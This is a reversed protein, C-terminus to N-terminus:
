RVEQAVDTLVVDHWGATLQTTQHHATGDVARWSIEAEVPGDGAAGLGFFVDFSRKGSHGSGGDLQALQTRGDATRIRVQAGYAPSGPGDGGGDAPRHLRLGLFNGQGANENRYFVPAGWQRAVAFDQAGNGDTDAVAVGRSPTDDTMGLEASINAYRGNDERVWFAFPQSGAIDDGPEANPWMHPEALMLDNSMALEQLWSWRNINGKVFGTAQVVSLRGSNDFDAMKSDWGWGVWAMNLDAAKNDFIAEGRDLRRRADETSTANNRWVFNSEELGWSTTINSVFMDFRGSGELDAFDISMGKFSDQGVVMSKPTFPGRRGETLSFRIRGPTSDNRFLHDHGFDNALYLEPLLDGDLDASGAGLTWGTAAAPPVAADQEVYSVTPRAGITAATWRLLHAGGGNTARSLSHNMTVNPQGAPDLVQSDPFYNFVGIDPHGDGDFDAISVANTNWLKGQYAGNPGPTTPVLETPQFTQPSLTAAAGTRHLFVVPTRAWYYVLLDTLGDGNFDGPACGMPAMAAHTPLPAPDLVFPAYRPPQGPVPAPTVVTSDSRADVLCLDNPAQDGDIDNVAIAAGVSSIWSRIHEYAPNVQRVTRQPLGPPLAIPLETFRFRAALSSREEASAAPLRAVVFLGAVLALM